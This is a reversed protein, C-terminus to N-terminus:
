YEVIVRLTDLYSDAPLDRFDHGSISAELSLRTVARTGRGIGSFAEAQLRYPLYHQGSSRMRRAGTAADANVGRDITVRFDVGRTCALSISGVGVVNAAQAPDIAGFRIDEVGQEGAGLEDEDLSDVGVHGSM